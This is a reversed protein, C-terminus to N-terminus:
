TMPSPPTPPQPQRSNDQNRKTIMRKRLYYTILIGLAFIISIIIAITKNSKKEESETATITKQDDSSILRKGLALQDRNSSGVTFMTTLNRSTKDGLKSSAVFVHYGDTIWNNLTAKWYGKDNTKTSLSFVGRDISIFIEANPDASGYFEVGKSRKNSSELVADKAFSVRYLNPINIGEEVTAIQTQSNAGNNEVEGNNHSISPTPSPIVRNQGASNDGSEESYIEISTDSATSNMVFPVGAQDVTALSYDFFSINGVGSSKSHFTISFLLTSPSTSCGAAGLTYIIRGESNSYQREAEFTFINGTKILSVELLNTPFSLYTMTTCVKSGGTELVVNVVVDSGTKYRGGGSISLKPDAAFVRFCCANIFVLLFVLTKFIQKM